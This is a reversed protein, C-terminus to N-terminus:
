DDDDARWASLFPGFSFAGEIQPSLCYEILLEKVSDNTHESILKSGDPKLKYDSLKCARLQFYFYQELCFEKRYNPLM